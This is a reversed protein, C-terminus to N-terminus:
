AIRRRWADLARYVWEARRVLAAHCAAGDRGRAFVTCVPQGRAIHEGPHPVDRVTNSRAWRRTDGVVVAHRAYVIAKGVAGRTRRALALDFSPARAGCAAVHAAFVPLDYAREALEMAATYRPNIEVLYPVGHRAVFDIGNVGILGFEEVIARALAGARELLEADRRLQADGAAALINGCYKFGSAGFAREGILQRTLAFAVAREGDAVFVLSAPTGAIREQVVTGAPLSQGARWPVIGHGGGSARPKSLLRRADPTPRRSASRSMLVRTRAQGATQLAAAGARTPPVHSGDPAAAYVRPVDFGRARLRRAVLVPNRVRALVEPSNGLLLRHEALRAVARPHNELNSVYAIAECPITSAARVLNRASYETNFDRHLSLAQARAAHDLDGFADVSVVAYGALVASDAMARTSVGALLVAGAKRM